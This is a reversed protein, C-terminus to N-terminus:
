AKRTLWNRLPWVHDFEGHRVDRSTFFMVEDCSRLYDEHDPTLRNGYAFVKFGEQTFRRLQQMQLVPWPYRKALAGDYHPGNGHVTCIAVAGPDVTTTDLTQNPSTM